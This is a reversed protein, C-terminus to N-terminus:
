GGAPFWAELESRPHPPTSFPVSAEFSILTLSVGGPAPSQTVTGSELGVGAQRDLGQPEARVVM